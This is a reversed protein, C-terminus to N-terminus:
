HPCAPACGAGAGAALCGGEGRQEHPFLRDLAGAHLDPTHAYADRRYRPRLNLRLFLSFHKLIEAVIKIAVIQNFVIPCSSPQRSCRSPEVTPRAATASASFAFQRTM